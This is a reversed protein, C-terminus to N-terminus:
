PLQPEITKSRLRMFAKFVMNTEIFHHKKEFHKQSVKM